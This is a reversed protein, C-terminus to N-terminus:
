EADTRASWASIAAVDGRLLTSIEGPNLKETGPRMHNNKRGHFDPKEPRESAQVIEAGACGDADTRHRVVGLQIKGAARKPRIEARAGFRPPCGGHFCLSGFGHRFYEVALRALEVATHRSSM